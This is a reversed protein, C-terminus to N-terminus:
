KLSDKKQKLPVFLKNIHRLIDWWSAIMDRKMLQKIHYDLIHAWTLCECTKLHNISPKIGNCKKIPTM